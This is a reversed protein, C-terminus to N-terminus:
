YVEFVIAVRRNKARKIPTSNDTIGRNDAYGEVVFKKKPLRGKNILYSVVSGARAASLEWNSSFRANHTPINDSHGEVSIKPSGSTRIIPILKQFLTKARPLLKIDGAKFM